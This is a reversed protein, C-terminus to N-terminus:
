NVPPYVADSDTQSFLYNCRYRRSVAEIRPFHKDHCSSNLLAVWVSLSPQIKGTYGLIALRGEAATGLIRVCGIQSCHTLTRKRTVTM